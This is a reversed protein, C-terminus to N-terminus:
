HLDALLFDLAAPLRRRWATENHQGEPDPLWILREGPTFGLVDLLDSMLKSQEFLIQGLQKPDEAPGEKQGHDLYIKATEAPLCMMLDQFIAFRDPWLAPSMVLARQYLDPYHFLGYLALLGGLSSGGILNHESSFECQFERQLEPILIGQVWSLITAGLGPQDPFPPFPSLEQERLPGHHLGVVLPVALGAQERAQFYSHTHLGGALTGQDDFINQGDFFLALGKPTQQPTWVSIPREGVIGPITINQSTRVREVGWERWQFFEPSM